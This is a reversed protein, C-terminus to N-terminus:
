QNGMEKVILLRDGPNVEEVGRNQEQISEVTTFYNKAISWLSDGEKVIYGVIGPIKQIADYDLPEEKIDTM